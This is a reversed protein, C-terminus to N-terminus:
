LEIFKCQLFMEGIAYLFQRKVDRLVCFPLIVSYKIINELTATVCNRHFEGFREVPVACLLLKIHQQVTNGIVATREIFCLVTNHAEVSETIITHILRPLKIIQM